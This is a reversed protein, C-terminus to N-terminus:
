TSTSTPSSLHHVAIKYELARLYDEYSKGTRGVFQRIEGQTCHLRQMLLVQIEDQRCRWYLTHLAESYQQVSPHQWFDEDLPTAQLRQCEKELNELLDLARVCLSRITHLRGWVNAADQGDPDSPLDREHTYEFPM